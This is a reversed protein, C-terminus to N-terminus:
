LAAPRPFRADDDPVKPFPSATSTKPGSAARSALLLAAQDRLAPEPRTRAAEELMAAAEPASSAALAVLANRQMAERGRWAAATPAFAAEFGADDLGLLWALDVGGDPGAHPARDAPPPEGRRAAREYPCVTQCDDCGFLRDGMAAAAAPGVLGDAQNKYGLCIRWDLRYPTLAGTPCADLCRTCSGCPSFSVPSDPELAVTTFLAGLFIQTGLEPSLVLTSKGVAGLGARVAIARDMPAELDCQPRSRAGPVREALWAALAELRGLMVEHYDPGVCYGSLYGTPAAAAARPAIAPYRWAVALISRCGPLYREPDTREAVTGVEFPNVGSAANRAELQAAEAAFPAAHAVRAASFGLRLAEAVLAAKLESSSSPSAM